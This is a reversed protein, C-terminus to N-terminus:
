HTVERRVVAEAVRRLQNPDPEFGAAIDPHLAARAEDLLRRQVVEVPEGAYDGQVRHAADSLASSLQDELPERLKLESPTLSAPDLTVHPESM